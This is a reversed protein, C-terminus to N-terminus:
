EDNLEGKVKVLDEPQVTYWGGTVPNYGLNDGAKILPVFKFIFYEQEPIEAFFRFGKSHAWDGLLSDALTLLGHGSAGTSVIANVLAERQNYTYGRDM